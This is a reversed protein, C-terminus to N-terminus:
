LTEANGVVILGRQARTLAVNLRRLNELFGIVNDINSRVTSFMVVGCERGQWSDITKVLEMENTLDNKKLVQKLMQVQGSYPSILGLDKPATSFDPIEDILYKLIEVLAKAQKKNCYSDGFNEEMADVNIFVMPAKHNM